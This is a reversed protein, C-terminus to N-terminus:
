PGVGQMSPILDPRGTSNGQYVRWIGVTWRSYDVLYIEVSRKETRISPIRLVVRTRPTFMVLSGGDPFSDPVSGSVM